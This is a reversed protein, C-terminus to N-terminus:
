GRRRAAFPVVEAHPKVAAWGRAILLGPVAVVVFLGVLVIGILLGAMARSFRTVAWSALAPADQWGRGHRGVFDWLDRLLPPLEDRMDRNASM